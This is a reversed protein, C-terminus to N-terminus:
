NSDSSGEEEDDQGTRPGFTYFGDRHAPCAEGFLNESDPHREDLRRGFEEVAALVAPIDEAVTYIGVNWESAWSHIFHGYNEIMGEEILEEWIPIGISEIQEMAADLESFDCQFFSLRLTPPTDEQDQAAATAPLALAVLFSLVLPVRKM